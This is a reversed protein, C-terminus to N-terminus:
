KRGHARMHTQLPPQQILDNKDDVCFVTFVQSIQVDQEGPLREVVGLLQDMGIRYCVLGM